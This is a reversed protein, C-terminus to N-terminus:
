FEGDEIVILVKDRNVFRGLQHHMAAPDINVRALECKLHQPILNALRHKGNMAQVSRSRPDQQECEVTVSRFDQTTLEFIPGDFLRVGRDNASDRGLAADPIFRQKLFRIRDDVRFGVLIFRSLWRDGM